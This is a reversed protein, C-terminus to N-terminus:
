AGGAHIGTMVVSSGDGRPIVEGVVRADDGQSRLAAIAADEHGREVMLVMGLGGNFTRVMELDDLEGTHKLWGLIGPPLWTSRDLHVALDEPLVRPINGVLGGGTIHACGHIPAAALAALVGKVYIRTPTLLSDGLTAGLEPIWADLSLGSEGVVKRVLSFGNSHVGTSPIGLVTMGAKVSSGNIIRSKEVAGVVFGALDFGGPPYVGPMEATEGGLLACGAQRCGDAVGEIVEVAADSDLRGTAYYDLFFLPEAGHVVVDNACMAVLDIGLGRYRGAQEAVKLKTGVGDTSAILVLDRFSGVPMAFMGGFSGLDTLVEPRFTSRALPAIRKVFADGAAIDVGAQRYRDTM